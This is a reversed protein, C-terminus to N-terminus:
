NFVKHTSPHKITSEHQKKKKQHLNIRTTSNQMKHLYYRENFTEYKQMKTKMKSFNDNKTEPTM